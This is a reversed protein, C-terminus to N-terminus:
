FVRAVPKREVQRVLTVRNKEDPFRSCLLRQNVNQAFDYAKSRCATDCIEHRAERIWRQLGCEPMTTEAHPGVHLTARFYRKKRFLASCEEDLLKRLKPPVMRGIHLNVGDAMAGPRDKMGVEQVKQARLM